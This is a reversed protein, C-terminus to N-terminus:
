HWKAEEYIAPPVGHSRILVRSNKLDDLSDVMGVRGSIRDLEQQNHILPGFTEIYNYEAACKEAMSLARNVGFCFGCEKVLSIEM